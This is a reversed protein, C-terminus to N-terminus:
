KVASESQSEIDAIAKFVPYFQQPVVANGLCKIRDMGRPVGHYSRCLKPEFTNSRRQWDKIGRATACSSIVSERCVPRETDRKQEISDNYAVIAVRERAHIAGVDAARFTCWAADYGMVALDRLVERFFRGSESSLLGRVNEAVVWKPRFESIIRRYEPWLDREDASAKRLGAVSHPQCPFGGSIVTCGGGDPEKIFSMQEYIM